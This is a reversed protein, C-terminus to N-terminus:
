SGRMGGRSYPWHIICHLFEQGFGVNKLYWRKGSVACCAVWDVAVCTISGEHGKLTRLCNCGEVDWVKLFSDTAGTLACTSRLRHVGLKTGETQFLLPDRDHEAERARSVANNCACVWSSETQYSSGPECFGTQVFTESESERESPWCQGWGSMQMKRFFLLCEAAHCPFGLFPWQNLCKELV